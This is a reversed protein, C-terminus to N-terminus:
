LVIKDRKEQYQQEKQELYKLIYEEIFLPSLNEQKAFLDNLITELELATLTDQYKKYFDNFYKAKQKTVREEKLVQQKKKRQDIEQKRQKLEHIAEKYDVMYEEYSKKIDNRPFANIENLNVGWRNYLIIQYKEELLSICYKAEKISEFGYIQVFISQKKLLVNEIYSSLKTIITKEKKCFFSDHKGDGPWPNRENLEIGNRHLFLLKEDKSLAPLAQIM